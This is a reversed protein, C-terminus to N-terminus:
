TKMQSDQPTQQHFALKWLGDRNVYGSSVLASYTSPDGERQAKVRYTLILAGDSFKLIRRDEVTVRSWRPANAISGVIQENTLIGVPEPFLMLYGTPAQGGFTLIAELFDDPVPDATFHPTARRDLLVQTIPKLPQGNQQKNPYRTPKDQM